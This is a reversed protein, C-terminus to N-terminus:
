AQAKKSHAQGVALPEVYGPVDEAARRSAGTLVTKLRGLARLPLANVALLPALYRLCGQSECTEIIDSTGPKLWLCEPKFESHFEVGNSGEYTTLM